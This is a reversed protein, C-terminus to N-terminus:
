TYSLKDASTESSSRSSAVPIVARPRFDIPEGALVGLGGVEGGGQQLAGDSRRTPMTRRGTSARRVLPEAAEYVGAIEGM